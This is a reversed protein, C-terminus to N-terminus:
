LGADRYLREEPSRVYGTHALWDGGPVPAGIWDDDPHFYAFTYAVCETVGGPGILAVRLPTLNYGAGVEMHEVARFDPSDINVDIVEGFVPATAGSPMMVPYAGGAFEYMTWGPGTMAPVRAGPLLRDNGGGHRLSGYLFLRIVESWGTRAEGVLQSGM